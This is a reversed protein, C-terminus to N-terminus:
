MKINPTWNRSSRNITMSIKKSNNIIMTSIDPNNQKFGFSLNRRTNSVENNHNFILVMGSRFGDSSVIVRFEHKIGKISGFSNNVLFGTNFSGLLIPSHFSFVLMNKIYSSSSSQKKLWFKWFTLGINNKMCNKENVSDSSWKEFVLWRKWIRKPVM